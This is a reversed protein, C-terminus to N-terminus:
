AVHEPTRLELAPMRGRALHVLDPRAAVISGVALFTIVAEGVGILLHWTGMATALTDLPIPAAGGVAYLGVFVLAAAPVSVLAGAAAAFPVSAPRTPLVAVVARSVGYGVWVAALGMLVVNTGLATVGGDAFLFAQVGLVVTLCLTATAPGVLVAALVAGILHGSTGAGVPFNVMQAAFVFVAVLGALPATREDLERRSARALSLAVVGGAVVATGVSTPADLFGDPVHM